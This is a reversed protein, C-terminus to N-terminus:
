KAEIELMDDYDILRQFANDGIRKRLNELDEDELKSLLKRSRLSSSISKQQEKYSMEEFERISLAAGMQKMYADLDNKKMAEVVKGMHFRFKAQDEQDKLENTIKLQGKEERKWRRFASIAADLDASNKALGLTAVARKALRMAPTKSRIFLGVKSMFDAGDYKGNGVSMDWLEGVVGVPAMSGVVESALSQVGGVREFLRAALALPGGMGQIFSNMVFALPDDEAEKDLTELGAAGETLLRMLILTGAGQLGTGFIYRSIKKADAWQQPKDGTRVSENLNNYLSRLQNLKMMPYSHFWFLSNFFRSAGLRSREATAMNGSSLFAAAKTEFVQVTKPSRGEVAEKASKTDIGMARMTSIV